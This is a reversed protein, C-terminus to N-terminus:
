DLVRQFPEPSVATRYSNSLISVSAAPVRETREGALQVTAVGTAADLDTVWLVMGALITQDFLQIDEVVAGPKGGRTAPTLADGGRLASMRGHQEFCLTTDGSRDFCLLAESAAIWM